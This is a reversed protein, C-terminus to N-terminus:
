IEFTEPSLELKSLFRDHFSPLIGFLRGLEKEPKPNARGTPKATGEQPQPQDKRRKPLPQGKNEPTLTPKRTPNFDLQPQDKPDRNALGSGLTFSPYPRVSGFPICEGCAASMCVFFHTKISYGTDKNKQLLNIKREKKSFFLNFKKKLFTLLNQLFSGM